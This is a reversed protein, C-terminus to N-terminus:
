RSAYLLGINERVTSPYCSVKFEHQVLFAILDSHSYDTVNDHYEM